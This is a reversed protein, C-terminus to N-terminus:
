VIAKCFPGARTHCLMSQELMYIQIKSRPKNSPTRYLTGQGGQGNTRTDKRPRDKFIEPVKKELKQMLDPCWLSVFTVSGSKSFFDKPNVFPPFGLKPCIQNKTRM